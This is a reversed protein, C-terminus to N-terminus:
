PVGHSRLPYTIFVTGGTKGCTGFVFREALAAGTAQFVDDVFIM